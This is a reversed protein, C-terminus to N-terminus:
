KINKEAVADMILFSFAKVINIFEDESLQTKKILKEREKNTFLEIYHSNPSTFIRTLLVDAAEADLTNFSNIAVLM